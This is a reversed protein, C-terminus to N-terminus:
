LGDVVRIIAGVRLSDSPDKRISSDQSERKGKPSTKRFRAEVEFLKGPFIRSPHIDDGPELERGLAIECIRNYECGAATVEGVLDIGFYGVLSVGFYKGETVRFRIVAIPKGWLTAVKAGECLTLYNAAPMDLPPPM